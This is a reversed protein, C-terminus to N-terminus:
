LFESMSNTKQPSNQGSGANSSRRPKPELRISSTKELQSFQGIKEINKFRNKDKSPIVDKWTKVQGNVLLLNSGRQILLSAMTDDGNM